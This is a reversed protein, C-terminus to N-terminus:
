HHTQRLLMSSQSYIDVSVSSSSNFSISRNIQNAVITINSDSSLLIPAQYPVSYNPCSPEIMIGAGDNFEVPNTESSNEIQGIIAQNWPNRLSIDCDLPNNESDVVDVNLEYNSSNALGISDKTLELQTNDYIVSAFSAVLFILVCAIALKRM